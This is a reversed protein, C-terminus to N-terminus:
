KCICETEAQQPDCRGDSDASLLQRSRSHNVARESPCMSGNVAIISEPIVEWKSWESYSCNICKPLDKEIEVPPECGPGIQYRQRYSHIQKGSDCVSRAVPVVIETWESWETFVCESILSCHLFLEPFIQRLPSDCPLQLQAGVSSALALVLFVSGLSM